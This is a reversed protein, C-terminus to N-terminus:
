ADEEFIGPFYELAREKDSDDLGAWGTLGAKELLFNRATDADVLEYSDESGQWMSWHYMYFYVTGSRAKHALLDTGQTYKTGTNPPNVPSDYLVIDTERNVVVRKEDPTKLIKESM